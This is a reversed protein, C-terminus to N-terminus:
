RGQGSGLRFPRLGEQVTSALCAGAVAVLTGAYLLYPFRVASESFPLALAVGPGTVL